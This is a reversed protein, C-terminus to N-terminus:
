HFGPCSPPFNIYTKNLAGVKDNQQLSESMEMLLQKGQEMVSSAM